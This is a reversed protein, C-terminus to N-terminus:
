ALLELQDRDIFGQNFTVEESVLDPVGGGNWHQSSDVAALLSLSDPTGVMCVGPGHSRCGIACAGSAAIDLVQQDYFYLGTVAFNSKPQLPEEEISMAEGNEDFGVVGYREPGSVYLRIDDHRRDTRGCKARL